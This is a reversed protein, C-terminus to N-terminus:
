SRLRGDHLQENQAELEDRWQDTQAYAVIFEQGTDTRFSEPSPGPSPPSPSLSHQSHALVEVAQSVEEPTRALGLARALPARRVLSSGILFYGILICCATWISAGLAILLTTVM